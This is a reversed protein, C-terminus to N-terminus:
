DQSSVYVVALGFRVWALAGLGLTVFGWIPDQTWSWCVASTLTAVTLGVLLVRAVVTLKTLFRIMDKFIRIVFM